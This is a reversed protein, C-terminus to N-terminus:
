AAILRLITPIGEVLLEWTAGDDTSVYLEGSFLPLFFRGTVLPDAVLAPTPQFHVPLGQVPTWTLGRDVTRM